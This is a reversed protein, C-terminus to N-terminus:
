WGPPTPPLDTACQAESPNGVPLDRSADWQYHRGVFEGDVDSCEWGRVDVTVGDQGHADVRLAGVANWRALLDVQSLRGVMELSLTMLGAGAADRHYTYRASAPLGTDDDVVESLDIGITQQGGTTDYTFVFHGKQLPRLRDNLGERQQKSLNLDMTGLSREVDNGRADELSFTGSFVEVFGDADRGCAVNRDVFPGQKRGRALHACYRFGGEGVNADRRLEFRITRDEADDYWPGWVRVGARTKSPRAEMVKNVLGILQFTVTNLMGAVARAQCSIIDKADGRDCANLGQLAQGTLSEYYDAGPVRLHVADGPIRRPFLLDEDSWNCATLGALLLFAM